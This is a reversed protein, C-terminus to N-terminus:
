IKIIKYSTSKYSSNIKVFYIGKPLNSLTLKKFSTEINDDFVLEGELNYIYFAGINKNDLLSHIYLYNDVFTPYLEISNSPNLVKENFEGQCEKDTKVNIENYGNALDIEIVKVEKESSSSVEIKNYNNVTVIYKNAGKLELNYAGISNFSSQTELNVPESVSVVYRQLFDKEVIKIILDYKGSSLNEYVIEDNLSKFSSLNNNQDKLEFKYDHEKYKIKLIIKGNNANICTESYSDIEFADVPLSFPCGKESEIGPITPCKDDSDNINDNDIDSSCLHILDIIEEYDPTMKVLVPRPRLFRKDHSLLEGFILPDSNNDFIYKGISETSRVPVIEAKTTSLISGDDGSIKYISFNQGTTIIDGDCNIIFDEFTDYDEVNNGPENNARTEWFLGLNNTDIKEIVGRGNSVIEDYDLVKSKSNVSIGWKSLIKDGNKDIKTTLFSNSGRQSLYINDYFDTTLNLSQFGNTLDRTWITSDFDHGNLKTLIGKGYLKREQKQGLSDKYFAKTYYINKETDTAFYNGNGDGSIKSSITNGNNKNILFTEFFTPQYQKKSILLLHNEDYDLLKSNIHSNTDGFFDSEWLFNGNFINIKRIKFYGEGYLFVDNNYKIIKTKYEEGNNSGLNIMWSIIGNEDFLILKDNKPDDFSYDYDNLLVLYKNDVKLIDSIKHHCDIQSRIQLNYCILIIFSYLIKNM